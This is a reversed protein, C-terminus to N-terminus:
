NMQMNTYSIPTSKCLSVLLPYHNKGPNLGNTQDNLPLTELIRVNYYLVDM